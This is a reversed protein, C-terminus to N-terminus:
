ILDREKREKNINERKKKGKMLRERQNEEWHEQREQRLLNMENKVKKKKM